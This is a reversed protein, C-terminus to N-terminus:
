NEKEEIPKITTNLNFYDKLLAKYNDKNVPVTIKKGHKTLTLKNSNMTARGYSKPMTILLQKVFISDENHQNYEMHEEFDELKRPTVDAEYVTDWENDKLKQAAIRTDDVYVARFTGTNAHIAESHEDTSIPVAQDAFDGFGVDAVYQRNNIEIITTMHTGKRTWGKPTKITAAVNYATFGKATLYSKFFTNMEYCYGGRGEVVIKNFLDDEDTAIPVKNQVNINEFPVKYVYQHILQNLYDISVKTTSTELFHDIKEIQANNMM